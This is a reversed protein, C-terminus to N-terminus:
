HMKEMLSEFDTYFVFPREDSKHYQNFDLIKTHFADAFSKIKVYFM